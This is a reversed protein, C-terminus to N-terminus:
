LSNLKNRTASAVLRGGNWILIPISAVMYAWQFKKVALATLNLYNGTDLGKSLYGLKILKQQLFKVEQNGLMGYFLDKTIPPILAPPPAKQTVVIKMLWPMPYDLPFERIGGNYTDFIRIKDNIKFLEMAHECKCVGSGFSTAVQLPAHNLEWKIVELVPNCQGMNVWEYRLEWTANALNNKAKTKLEPPIDCYYREWDVRDERGFNAPWDEELLWGDHTISYLVDTLQSGNMTNGCMKATFRDSFNIEIGTQQKLQTEIINFCSFISCAQTAVYTGVQPEYKPLFPTWDSCVNRHQLGSEAGVKWDTIKIIPKPTGHNM